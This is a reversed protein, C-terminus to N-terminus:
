WVTYAPPEASGRTILHNMELTTQTLNALCRPMYLIGIISSFVKLEVCACTATGAALVLAACTATSTAPVASSYCSVPYCLMMCSPHQCYMSVSIHLLSSLHSSVALPVYTVPLQLLVSSFRSSCCRCCGELCLRLSSTYYPVEM